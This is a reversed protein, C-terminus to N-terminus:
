QAQHRQAYALAKDPSTFSATKKASIIERFEWCPSRCESHEGRPFYQVELWPHGDMLAAIQERKSPM